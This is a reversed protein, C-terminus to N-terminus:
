NADPSAPPASPELGVEVLRRAITNDLLELLARSGIALAKEQCQDKARCEQFHRRAEVSVARAKIVALPLADPTAELLM